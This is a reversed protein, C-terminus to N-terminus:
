NDGTKGTGECEHCEEWDFYEQLSRSFANYWGGDGNCEECIDLELTKELNMM